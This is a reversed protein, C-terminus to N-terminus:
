RDVALVDFESRRTRRCARHVGVTARAWEHGGFLSQQTCRRRHLHVSRRFLVLTPFPDVSLEVERFCVYRLVLLVVGGHGGAIRGCGM